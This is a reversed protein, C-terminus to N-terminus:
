DTGAITDQHVIPKYDLLRKRVADEIASLDRNLMYHYEPHHRPPGKIVVSTLEPRLKHQQFARVIGPTKLRATKYDFLSPMKAPMLIIDGLEAVLKVGKLSKLRGVM